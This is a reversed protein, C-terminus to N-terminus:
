VEKVSDLWKVSRIRESLTFANNYGPLEKVTEVNVSGLLPPVYAFLFCRGDGKANMCCLGFLIFM